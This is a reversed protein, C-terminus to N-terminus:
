WAVAWCCATTAARIQSPPAPASWHTQAPPLHRDRCGASAVIQSASTTARDRSMPALARWSIAHVARGQQRLADRHEGVAIARQDVGRAQGGSIPHTRGGGRDRCLVRRRSCRHGDSAHPSGRAPARRRRRRQSRRWRRPRPERRPLRGLAAPRARTLRRVAVRRSRSRQGSASGLRPNTGRSQRKWQHENRRVRHLPALRVRLANQEGRRPEPDISSAAQNQLVCRVSGAPSRPRAAAPARSMATRVVRGSSASWPASANTSATADM